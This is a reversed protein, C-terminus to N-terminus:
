DGSVARTVPYGEMVWSKQTKDAIRGPLLRNAKLDYARVIYRSQNSADVYQVLYMRRGNPSLADFSFHGHLTVGTRMRFDRTDYVLFGTSSGYATQGLVLTRGDRSLSEGSAGYSLAPLGYSGFIDQWGKITGDKTSVMELVTNAGGNAPLAVYRITGDSSLVGAGGQQAFAAPGDAAAAPAAVLGALALALAFRRPTM